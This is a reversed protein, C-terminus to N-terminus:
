SKNLASLHSPHSAEAAATQPAPSRDTRQVDQVCHTLFRYFCFDSLASKHSTQVPLAGETGM